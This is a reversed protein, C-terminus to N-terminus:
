TRPDGWDFRGNKREHFFVAHGFHRLVNVSGELRVHVDEVVFLAGDAAAVATLVFGARRKADGHVALRKLVFSDGDAVAIAELLPADLNIVHDFVNASPDPSLM